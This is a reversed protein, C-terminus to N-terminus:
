QDDLRRRLWEVSDRVEIRPILLPDTATTCYGDVTTFLGRYGAERASQVATGSFSGYPWCLYPCPSALERELSMKSATLESLLEEPPLDACRRHSVTHSYFGALGGAAMTRITNWDLVVREAHGESILGKAEDHRPTRSTFGRPRLSAADARATIIFFTARIGLQVLLPYANLYNDLWGDDFTIAVGKEPVPEEGGVLGVLEAASLFRYGSAVLYRMQAAFVEPTVTVTDGPHPAIHHYMLVPIRNMPITVM